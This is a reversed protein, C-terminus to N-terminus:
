IGNYRRMRANVEGMPLRCRPHRSITGLGVHLRDANVVAHLEFQDCLWLVGHFAIGEDGALRRLGGDGTLLPWGRQEAIAFAFTDPASLETRARRVAIARSLEAPTLNEVRMGLAVLQDGLPGKLERDFLLDPVAFEYPLRFLDELFDGRELDIVM